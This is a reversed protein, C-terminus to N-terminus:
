IEEDLDVTYVTDDATTIDDDAAADYDSPPYISNSTTTFPDLHSWDVIDEIAKQYTLNRSPIDYHELSELSPMHADDINYKDFHHDIDDIGTM